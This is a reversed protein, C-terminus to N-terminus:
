KLYLVISYMSLLSEYDLTSLLTDFCNVILPCCSKATRLCDRLVSTTDLLIENPKIKIISDSQLVLQKYLAKWVPIHEQIQLLIIFFNNYGIYVFLSLFFDKFIHVQDLKKQTAIRFPFALISKVNKFQYENKNADTQQMYKTLVEAITAWLNM